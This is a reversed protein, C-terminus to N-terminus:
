SSARHATRIAHRRRMHTIEDELRRRRRPLRMPIAEPRTGAGGRQASSGSALFPFPPASHRPNVDDLCGERCPAVSLPSQGLCPVAFCLDQGPFDLMTPGFVLEQRSFLRLITPLGRITLAKRRDRLRTSSARSHLGPFSVRLRNDAVPALDQAMDLLPPSRRAPSGSPRPSAGGPHTNRAARPPRGARDCCAEWAGRNPHFSAATPM